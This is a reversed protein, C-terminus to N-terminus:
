PTVCGPFFANAVIKSAQGRTVNNAWRFYPRNQPDCPEGVGGCPYGGMVGRNSLRMIALYFVNTPPVDAYIQGSVPEHFGAAHSVIQSLQGRTANAGWRFYPRNQPDCPEGVGGCPYGTMVGRATLREIWEYFPNSPPVDAYTQGSVPEQFGAANSVVKSIQGRTINNYPRFTGDSYGGLVGRCALCRVVTYFPDTPPVDSFAITCPTPTATSTTATGTATSAPTTIGTATRSPTTTSVATGTPTPTAVSTGADIKSVFADNDGGGYTPQLPNALPFNTSSTKGTVYASGGSDVAIGQGQDAYSGGLYTSYVLTSGAASLKSVFA